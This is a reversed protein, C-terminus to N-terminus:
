IKNQVNVAISFSVKNYFKTLQNISVDVINKNNIIILPFEKADFIPIQYKTKGAAIHLMNEVFNFVVMDNKCNKIINQIDKAPFCYTSEPYFEAECPVTVIMSNDLNTSKFLCSKESVEMLINSLIPMTSKKDVCTICMDIAKLLKTKEFTVKM